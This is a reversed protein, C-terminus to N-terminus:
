KRNQWITPNRSTHFVALVEISDTLVRYYICFPFDRVIAERVEELIRPHVEPRESIAQLTRQVADVFRPGLGPKQREYWDASEDFEHRAARRLVTKRKM